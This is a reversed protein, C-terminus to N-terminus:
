AKVREWIVCKLKYKRKEICAKIITFHEVQNSYFHLFIIIRMLTLSTIM